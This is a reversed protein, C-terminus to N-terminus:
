ELVRVSEPAFRARLAELDYLPARDVAERVLGAQSVDTRRRSHHTQGIGVIAVPHDGGVLVDGAM